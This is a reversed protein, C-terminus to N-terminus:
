RSRKKRRPEEVALARIDISRLLEALGPEFVATTAEELSMWRRERTPAEKWEDLEAEVRLSYVNVVCPVPETEPRLKDYSYAGIPHPSVIGRIGAEEFAEQAAAEADSKGRMPWGKPILWHRSIRSTILLVQVEDNVVRWPLAAFQAKPHLYRPRDDVLGAPSDTASEFTM